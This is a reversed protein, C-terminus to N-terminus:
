CINTHALDGHNGWEQATEGATTEIIKEDVRSVRGDVRGIEAEVSQQGEAAAGPGVGAALGDIGPHLRRVQWQSMDPRAVLSKTQYLLSWSACYSFVSNIVHHFVNDNSVYCQVAICSPSVSDITLDVGSPCICFYTCFIM